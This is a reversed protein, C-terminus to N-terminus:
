IVLLTIVLTCNLFIGCYLPVKICAVQLSTEGKANKKDINHPSGQWVNNFSLNMHSPSGLQFPTTSSCKRSSPSSM